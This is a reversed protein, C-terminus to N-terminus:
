KANPIRGPMLDPRVRRHMAREGNEKEYWLTSGTVGFPMGAAGALSYVLKGDRIRYRGNAV